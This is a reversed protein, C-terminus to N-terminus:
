QAGAAVGEVRSISDPEPSAYLHCKVSRGDVIVDAPENTRCIDMVRPCRDAFRCGRRLYEATDSAALSVRV